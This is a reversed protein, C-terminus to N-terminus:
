PWLGHRRGWALPTVFTERPFSDLLERFFKMAGVAHDRALFSLAPQAVHYQSKLRDYETSASMDYYLINPHFGLTVIKDPDALHEAFWLSRLSWDFDKVTLMHSDFFSNTFIWYDLVDRNVKFPPVYVPYVTCYVEYLVGRKAAAVCMPWGSCGNHSQLGRAQPYLQFLRNLVGDYDGTFQYNPHIGLEHRDGYDHLSSSNGSVDASHDTCFLTIPVEYSDVVGVVSKIIADPAWDVDLTIAIV